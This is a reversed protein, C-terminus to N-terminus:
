GRAVSTENALSASLAAPDPLQLGAEPLLVPIDDVVPYCLRSVPEVLGALPAEPADVRWQATGPDAALLALESAEALRLPRKHVPCYLLDLLRRDLAM